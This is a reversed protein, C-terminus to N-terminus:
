RAPPTPPGSLSASAGAPPNPLSNSAKAANLEMGTPKEIGFLCQGLSVVILVVDWIIVREGYVGLVETRSSSADRTYDKDCETENGGDDNTAECRFVELVRKLSEEADDSVPSDDVEDNDCFLM